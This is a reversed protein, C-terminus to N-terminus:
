CVQIRKSAVNAGILNKLSHMFFLGISECIKAYYSTLYVIHEPLLQKNVVHIFVTISLYTILPPIDVETASNLASVAYIM